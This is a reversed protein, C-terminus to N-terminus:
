NLHASGGRETEFHGSPLHEGPHKFCYQRQNFECFRLKKTARDRVLWCCPRAAPIPLPSFGLNEIM